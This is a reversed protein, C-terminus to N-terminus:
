ELDSMVLKGCYQQEDDGKPPVVNAFFTKVSTCRVILCKTIVIAKRAAAVNGESVDGLEFSMEERRQVREATM